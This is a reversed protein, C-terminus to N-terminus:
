YSWKFEANLSGTSPQAFCIPERGPEYIKKIQSVVRAFLGSNFTENAAVSAVDLWNAIIDRQIATSIILSDANQISWASAVM